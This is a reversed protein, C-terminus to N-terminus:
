WAVPTTSSLVRHNQLGYQVAAEFDRVMPQTVLQEFTVVALRRDTEDCFSGHPVAPILGGTAIQLKLSAFVLVKGEPASVVCENGNRDLAFLEGNRDAWHPSTLGCRDLHTKGGAKFYQMVRTARTATPYCHSQAYECADGLDVSLDLQQSISRLLGVSIHRSSQHLTEILGFFEADHEDGHIDTEHQEKLLRAMDETFMVHSKNDKPKGSHNTEQNTSILLGVDSEDEGLRKSRWQQWDNKRRDFFAPTLRLVEEPDCHTPCDLYAWGREIVDTAADELLRTDLM